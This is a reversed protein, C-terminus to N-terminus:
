GGLRALESSIMQRLVDPSANFVREGNVFWTPTSRIGRAEERNMDYRVTDSHTNNDVCTQLAGMDLGLGLGLQVAEAQSTRGQITQHFLADHMSWFENQGQDLACQAVEGMSQSWAPMIIPIDRYVFKAQNPFEELIQEVIGAEHWSRCASCGYAGYETITVPADPNGLIPDLELREQAVEPAAQGSFSYFAILGIVLIGILVAGIQIQQQQKQQQEREEKRKRANERKNKAM